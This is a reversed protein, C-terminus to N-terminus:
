VGHFWFGKDGKQKKKGLIREKLTLPKEAVSGIDFLEPHQMAYSHQWEKFKEVNKTKAEQMKALYEDKMTKWEDQTYGYPPRERIPLPDYFYSYFEKFYDLDRSEHPLGEVRVGEKALFSVLEPIGMKPKRNEAESPNFSVTIKQKVFEVKAMIVPELLMLRYQLRASHEIDILEERRVNSFTIEKITRYPVRFPKGDIIIRDDYSKPGEKLEQELEKQYANQELNERKDM